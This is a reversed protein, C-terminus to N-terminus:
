LDARLRAVLGPTGAAVCRELAAAITAEVEEAPAGAARDVCARAVALAPEQWQEGSVDLTEDARDLWARAEDVLGQALCGMALRSMFWPNFTLTEFRAYEALGREISAIGHAFSGTRIQVEGLSAAAGAYFFDFSGDTAEEVATKSALWAADIESAFNARMAEFVWLVLRIYPDQTAEAVPRLSALAPDAVGTLQHALAQFSLALADTENLWGPGDRHGGDAGRSAIARDLDRCGQGMDGFQFNTIGSASLSVASHAPDGSAGAVEALERALRMTAPVNCITAAGAWETWLLEALVDYSGSQRALQKARAIRESARAFGSLARRLATAQRIVDLEVDADVDAPPLAQRLRLSRELLEAATELAMRRAAVEAARELALPVRTGPVIAAAQWLHDAVIEADDAAGGLAEIADAARLHLRARRLMSMEALLVEQVLAHEFRVVALDGPVEVLMRTVLVPDLDDVCQEISVGAALALLPVSVQRGLVAANQLLELTPPPLRGLRRRVVDRVGVPVGARRVLEADSLGDEVALLRALERIFFPNGEARAHIADIVAPAPRHGTAQEILEACEERGVGHLMLLPTQPLKRLAGVAHTFAVPNDAETVRATAVVMLRSGFVRGALFTTLELSAIDAWHLDDLLIMRPASFAAQELLLAIAEFMRFRRPDAPSTELEDDGAPDLLRDILGQVGVDPLAGASAALSRLAGLWPWFAPTGSAEYSRGWLVDVGLSVAVDAVDEALRSKGIGAEGEILVWQTRGDLSADLARVLAARERARGVLEGAQMGGVHHSLSTSVARPVSPPGPRAPARLSADHQLIQVELERIQPSPDVGLEDLLRERLDNVVRLAEAQRGSRYLAVALNACLGERLPHQAVLESLEVIVADHRGLSLDARVRDEIAGLRREDLRVAAGRAWEQDSFEALAPGRWLDLAERLIASAGSADGDALLARGAEALREFRRFDVDDPGATLRYGGAEWALVSPGATPALVRRLRSVYSQLTGTASAPPAEDWLHDIITAAPVSRGSAVLLMALLTRQQAGGLDVPQGHEGLVELTGLVGFQM